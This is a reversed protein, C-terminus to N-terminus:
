KCKRIVYFQILQLLILFALCIETWKQCIVILMIMFYLKIQTGVNILRVLSSSRFAEKALGDQLFNRETISLTPLNSYGKFGLNILSALIYTLAMISAAKGWFFSRQKIELNLSGLLNFTASFVIDVIMGQLYVMKLGEILNKLKHLVKSGLTKQPETSRSKFFVKELM